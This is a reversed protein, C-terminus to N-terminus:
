LANQFTSWAISSHEATSHIALILNLFTYKWRWVSDYPLASWSHQTTSQLDFVIFVLLPKIFSIFFSFIYQALFVHVIVCTM